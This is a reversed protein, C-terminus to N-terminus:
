AEPHVKHQSKDNPESKIKSACGCAYVSKAIINEVIFAILAATAGIGLVLFAGSMDSLNLRHRRKSKASVPATCKNIRSNYQKEWHNLCGTDRMITIRDLLIM